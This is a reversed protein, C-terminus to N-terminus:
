TFWGLKWGLFRGIKKFCPRKSFSILKHPTQGVYSNEDPITYIEGHISAGKWVDEDYLAYVKEGDSSQLWQTLPEFLGSELFSSMEGPKVCFGMKQSDKKSQVCYIYDTYAIDINGENIAERLANHYIEQKEYGADAKLYEFRVALDYGKEKLLQNFKQVYDKQIRADSRVAWVITNEEDVETESSESVNEDPM